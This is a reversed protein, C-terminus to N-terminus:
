KRVQIRITDAKYIRSTEGWPHNGIAIMRWGYKEYYGIHDTCLYLYDFGLRGGDMRAYELLKAGLAHGRNKEEIYLACVYPFLDTRDVFDNQILGCGGIIEDLQDMMLYWQPLREQKHICADISKEYEKRDIHWKSSFWDVARSAYEHKEQVSVIRYSM